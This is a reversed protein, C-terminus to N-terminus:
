ADVGLMSGWCDARTIEGHFGTWGYLLATLFPLALLTFLFLCYLPRLAFFFASISRLLAVPLIWIDRVDHATRLWSVIVVLLLLLGRSGQARDRGRRRWRM